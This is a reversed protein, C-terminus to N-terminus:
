EWDVVTKSKECCKAAVNTTLDSEFWSTWLSQWWLIDCETIGLGGRNQRKECCKAAVNTTLDSEFWSTWLSQWWLTDSEIIGLGGRNQKERLM